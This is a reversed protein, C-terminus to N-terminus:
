FIIGYEKNIPFNYLKKKKKKKYNAWFNHCAAM